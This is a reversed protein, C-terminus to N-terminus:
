GCPVGAIVDGYLAWQTRGDVLPRPTLRFAAWSEAPASVTAADDGLERILWTEQGTVSVIAQIAGWGTVASELDGVFGAGGAIVGEPTGLEVARAEFDFAEPNPEVHSELVCWERPNLRMVLNLARDHAKGQPVETILSVAVASASATPPVPLSTRPPTPAPGSTAVPAASPSCSVASWVAILAMARLQSM